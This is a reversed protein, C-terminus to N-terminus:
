ADESQDMKDNAEKRKDNIQVFYELLAQLISMVVVFGVFMFGGMLFMLAWGIDVDNPM